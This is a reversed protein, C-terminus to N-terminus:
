FGVVAVVAVNVMANWGGGGDKSSCVGESGWHNGRGIVSVM